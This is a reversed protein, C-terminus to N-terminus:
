QPESAVHNFNLNSKVAASQGNKIRLVNFMIRSSNFIIYGKFRALVRAAHAVSAIRQSKNEGVDFEYKTLILMTLFLGALIDEQYLVRIYHSYLNV